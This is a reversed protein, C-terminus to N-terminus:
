KLYRIGKFFMKTLLWGHGFPDLKTSGYVREMYHVPTECIRRHQRAIGLFIDFDGFPDFRTNMRAYDRRFFAKVPSLTDVIKQSFLWSFMSSFLKNGLLNLLPMAQGQMPYVLRSANVCEAKDQALAEYLKPLESPHVTFDGDYIILIEGTSERIGHHLADGKGRGPQKLGRITLPGQYERMLREIEEWTGDNSHGEIFLLETKPAIVPMSDVIHKINGKENRVASLVTVSLDTRKGMLPRAIITQILCLRQLLPLSALIRNFFGSLFPIWLPFLIRGGREVVEFGALKLMNELTSYSLWNQEPFRTKIRLFEGIRFVPIWLFNFTTIVIRTQHTCLKTRIDQLSAQVDPLFNVTDLLLVYEYKESHQLAGITDHIYTGSPNREQAHTLMANSFDIGVKHAQPLSALITGIGCGLDVVSADVPIVRKLWQTRDRYLVSHRRADRARRDALSDFFERRADPLIFTNPAM